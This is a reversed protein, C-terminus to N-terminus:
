LNLVVPHGIIKQKTEFYMQRWYVNNGDVMMKTISIPRLPTFGVVQLHVLREEVREILNDLDPSDSLTRLGISIVILCSKWFVHTHFNETELKKNPDIYTPVSDLWLLIIGKPDTLEYFNPANIAEPSAKVSIDGIGIQLYEALKKLFELM